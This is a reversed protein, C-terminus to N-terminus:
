KRELVEALGPVGAAGEPVTLNAGKFDDGVAQFRGGLQKALFAEAVAYFATRNEPRAFGHGEDAFVVYSVPTGKAKLAAVIQDSEKKTVRPDNAGQAILLPRRIQDVRTIPSRSLLFARGEPDRPDGVRKYWTAELFPAWYAPFSEILTVLSSPGVIDVGCAFLDPTFTLGVLTAYGGYSGGYIAIKDKQAIGNAVAWNVADVLDDHMKGAFEGNAANLFNKGFGASGRYNVALVAYGRNAMWQHEPDYGHTDRAWPGGHVNLVMPLAKEPRGDGDADSGRPLTLYATLTLGDRSTIERSHMAVLPKGELEPRTVFLKSVKKATRDYLHYAAPGTVPDFAVTWLRDDDTRSTVEFGEGLIDRLFKLDGAIAPDIAHWEQKLYNAGYAQVVGTTPHRLVDEIDARTNEALVTAAGSALDYSVLAATDRERSDRGYLTRGDTSFGVISTTLSDEAPVEFLPEDGAKGAADLAHVVSGGADTQKLGLRLTLTDDAEFGAWENNELVFALRGTVLNLRHVDHWQPDRNNIGVLIEDKRTESFGIIDVRTKEFPTFCRVEASRVDAGYLLYNEDGGQDNIFLVLKSNPAWFHQRIPRKKEATIARGATPDGIPAVWINLVGDRPALWSLWQGDPSVRL